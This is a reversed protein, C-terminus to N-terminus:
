QRAAGDGRPGAAIAPEHALRQLGQRAIEAEIEIHREGPQRALRALKQQESRRFAGAALPLAGQRARRLELTQQWIEAPAVFLPAPGLLLFELRVSRQARARRAATLPQLGLAQRDLDLAPRNGVVH